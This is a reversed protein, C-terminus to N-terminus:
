AEVELEVEALGERVMNEKYEDLSNLFGGQILRIAADRQAKTLNIRSVDIKEKGAKGAGAGSGAPLTIDQNRQFETLAEKKGEAKYHKEYVGTEMLEGRAMMYAREWVVNTRQAAPLGMVKERAKIINQSFLPDKAKFKDICKQEAEKNQEILAAASEAIRNEEAAKAIEDATPAPRLEAAKARPKIEGTAPDIEVHAAAGQEFRKLRDLEKQTEEPIKVEESKGKDGESEKGGAGDGADSDGAASGGGGGDSKEGSAMGGGGAGNGGGGGSGGSADAEAGEKLFRRKWWLTEM